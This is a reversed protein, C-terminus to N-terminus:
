LGAPTQSGINPLQLHNVRLCVRWIAAMATTAMMMMMMMM